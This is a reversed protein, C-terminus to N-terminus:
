ASERFDWDPFSDMLRIVAARLASWDLRGGILTGLTGTLDSNYTEMQRKWRAPFKGQFYEKAHKNLNRMEQVDAEFHDLEAFISQDVLELDEIWRRHEFLKAAAICRL